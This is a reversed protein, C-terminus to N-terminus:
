PTDGCARKGASDLYCTSPLLYCTTLLLYSTTLLVKGLKRYYSGEDLVSTDEDTVSAWVVAGDLRAAFDAVAEPPRQGFCHDAGHAVALAVRAQPGRGGAFASALDGGGGGGGCDNVAVVVATTGDDTTRFLILLVDAAERWSWM